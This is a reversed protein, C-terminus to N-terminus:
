RRPRAALRVALVVVLPVLTVAAAVVDWVVQDGATSSVALAPDSAISPAMVAVFGAGACATWIALGLAAGARSDPGAFSFAGACVLNIVGIVVAAAVNFFVLLGYLPDLDPAGASLVEFSRVQLWAMAVVALVPLWLLLRSSSPSAAARAAPTAPVPRLDDPTLYPSTTM